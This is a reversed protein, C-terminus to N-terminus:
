VELILRSPDEILEKVTKLFQVSQRGDIIRHDYSMAVYMMPRIIIEGNVVVARDEIKHLGLIASQPLNLIPTSLLSGFVGGNTITFTGGTMEELTLEGDRARKAYSAIQKEIEAMSLQDADRVIPVVLGRETSVAMGIDFFGHYVLDNGDISANVDPFRKLAEVVAKTFFSMFGLRVNYQKEFIDKYAARLDMVAKMDIENFTTLMATTNKAALLREAIRARLRSMPVRKEERAGGGGSTSSSKAENPTPKHKLAEEVDQKTIRGDKGSGKVQKIDVEHEAVMRRVSPSLEEKVATNAPAKASAAVEAKKTSEKAEASIKALVAGAVVTVGQAQIIEELIGDQPAPVELVVKDTELDVVNEGRAVKDGPKKHWEGVTADMVSEPLQPVKIDITM